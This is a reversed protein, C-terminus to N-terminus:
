INQLARFGSCLFGHKVSLSLELHYGLSVFLFNDIQREGLKVRIFQTLDVTELSVPYDATKNYMLTTCISASDVNDELKPPLIAMNANEIAKYFLAADANYINEGVYLDSLPRKLLTKPFM